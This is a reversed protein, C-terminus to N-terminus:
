VVGDQGRAVARAPGVLASPVLDGAWDLIAFSAVGRGARRRLQLAHAIRGAGLRVPGFQPRQRFSDAAAFADGRLTADRAATHLLSVPAIFSRLLELLLM